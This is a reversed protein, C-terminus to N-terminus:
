ALLPNLFGPMDPLPAAMLLRLGEPEFDISVEAQLQTTLVRQLLRSGFGQRQPPEVPPGGREVWQLRLRRGDEKREVTWGVEVRGGRQSLSGYKAANTTLEHIAMGIPVALDSSLEVAPGDLRVREGNEDYPRLEDALLDRLNARQWEDDTLLSHTHAMSVIRGVFAKYFEDITASTRATSGVIAQVTALTNKVRHHLERILLHQREEDRKRATIDQVIGIM